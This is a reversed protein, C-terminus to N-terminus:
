IGKFPFHLLCVNNFGWSISLAEPCPSISKCKLTINLYLVSSFFVDANAKVGSAQWSWTFHQLIHICIAYVLDSDNLIEDYQFKFLPLDESNVTFSMHIHKFYVNYIVVIAWIETFVRMNRKLAIYLHTINIYINIWIILSLKEKRKASRNMWTSVISYWTPPLLVSTHM